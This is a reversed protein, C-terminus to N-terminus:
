VGSRLALIWVSIVLLCFIAGALINAVTNQALLPFQALIIGLLLGSVFGGFHAMVDSQPSLGMFVFLMIGAAIGTIILKLAIPNKRWSSVSQAALLGLAGMVMGSAGLSLHNKDIVWTTLNGGVGALLAALLGIGTGYRGMALGLLVFGIGANSALHGLDAHLFNCHVIAVMSRPFRRCQGDFGCRTFGRWKRQDLLVCQDPLGLGPQGLRLSRKSPFSEPAVALSSKRRPITSDCRTGKSLRTRSCDFGM